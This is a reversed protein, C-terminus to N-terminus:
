GAPMPHPHRSTRADATDGRRASNRIHIKV